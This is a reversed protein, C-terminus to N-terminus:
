RFDSSIMKCPTVNSELLKVDTCAHNAGYAFGSHSPNLILVNTSNVLTSLNGEGYVPLLLNDVDTVALIM